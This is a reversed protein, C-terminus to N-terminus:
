AGGTKSASGAPAYIGATIPVDTFDMSVFSIQHQNHTIYPKDEHITKHGLMRSATEIPVGRSVLTTEFARRLSHFARLPIKEVHAKECYKDIMNTFSSSLKRYPAKVTVFVEPVNCPPRFELVYDALVNMVNGNLEAILPTHTKTQLIRIKQHRWDVEELKLSVIDAGRLGTGYALLIIALDRVGLASSTDIAGSIDATEEESFAPIMRIHANKLKLATYDHHISGIQRAKLYETIYKVCRLTRGTSGSNTVPIESIIYKMIIADDIQSVDCDQEQLFWFLHRMPAYLDDRASVPIKNHDLIDSILHSIGESVPYKKIPIPRNSFDVKGEEALSSLMRIVRNQFRHYGFCLTHEQYQSDIYKRYEDMLDLSYLSTGREKAFSEIKRCVTKYQGLSIEQIGYDQIADMLTQLLAYLNQNVPIM